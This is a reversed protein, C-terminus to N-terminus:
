QAEAVGLAGGAADASLDLEHLARVIRRYHKTHGALRELTALPVWTPRRFADEPPREQGTTRARFLAVKEKRGSRKRHKWVVPDEAEVLVVVGAEERAERAAAELPSERRRATGKPLTWRGDRDHVVLVCTGGAGERVVAVGCTRRAM